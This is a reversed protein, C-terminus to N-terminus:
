AADGPRRLVTESRWIPIGLFRWTCVVFRRTESRGHQTNVFRDRLTEFRSLIM